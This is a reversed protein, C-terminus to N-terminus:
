PTGVHYGGIKLTGFGNKKAKIQEMEVAKPPLPPDLPSSGLGLFRCLGLFHGSPINPHKHTRNHSHVQCHFPM